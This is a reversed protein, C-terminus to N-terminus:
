PALLDLRAAPAVDFARAGDGAAVDDVAPQFGALYVLLDADSAAALDRPRLEVDHPEAGPRTLTTLQVDPGVVREVVFQLPYFAAVVRLPGDAARARASCGALGGLGALVGITVFAAAARRGVGAGRSMSPRAMLVIRM